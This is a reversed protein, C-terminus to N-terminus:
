NEIPKVKNRILIQQIEYLEQLRSKLKDKVVVEFTKVEGEDVIQAMREKFVSVDNYQIPEGGKIDWITGNLYARDNYTQATTFLLKAKKAKVITEIQSPSLEFEFPRTKIKGSENFGNAPSGKALTIKKGDADISVDTFVHNYYVDDYSCVLTLIQPKKLLGIKGNIFASGSYIQNNPDTNLFTNSYNGNLFKIVKDSFIEKDEEKLSERIEIIRSLLKSYYNLKSEDEDSLGKQKQIMTIANEFEHKQILYDIPAYNFGKKENQSNNGSGCSTIFAFFILGGALKLINRKTIKM